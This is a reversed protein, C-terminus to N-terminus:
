QLPAFTNQIDDVSYYIIFHQTHNPGAWVTPATVPAPPAPNNPYDDNRSAHCTCDYEGTAMYGKCHGDVLYWNAPWLLGNAVAVLQQCSNNCNQSQQISCGDNMAVAPTALAAALVSVVALRKM